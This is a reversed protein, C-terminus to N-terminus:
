LNAKVSKVGVGTVGVATMKAFLTNNPACITNNKLLYLPLYVNIETPLFFPNQAFLTSYQVFVSTNQTVLSILIFVIINQDFVTTNQAFLSTKPRKKFM